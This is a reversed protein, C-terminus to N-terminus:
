EVGKLLPNEGLFGRSGGSWRNLDEPTDEVVKPKVLEHGIPSYLRGCHKCENSSGKLLVEEGCYCEGVTPEWYREIHRQLGRYIVEYEDSECKEYNELAQESLNNFNIDGESNCPFFFGTNPKEVWEYFIYFKYEEVMRGHSVIKIM